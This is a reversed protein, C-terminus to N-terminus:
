EPEKGERRLLERLPIREGTDTLRDLLACRSDYEDQLRPSLKEWDFGGYKAICRKEIARVRALATAGEQMGPPWLAPDTVNARVLLTVYAVPDLAVSGPKGNAKTVFRPPPKLELNAKSM